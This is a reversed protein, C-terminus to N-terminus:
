IQEFLEERLKGVGDDGYVDGQLKFMKEMYERNEGVLYKQCQSSMVMTLKTSIIAPFDTKNSAAPSYIISQNKSLPMFFKSRFSFVESMNEIIIPNDGTLFNGWGTDEDSM